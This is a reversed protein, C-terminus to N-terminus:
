QKEGKRIRAAMVVDEAVSDLLKIMQDFDFEEPQLGNAAMLTLGTQFIRMKLLIAMLEEETFDELGPDKQMMNVLERVMEEDYNKLYENPELAFDRILVPYEMAMKLSAIGIDRFPNGSQHEQLMQQSLEVVKHIVARKVEDVDNFNVYIPASSSGLHDAIKRITVNDLGETKAIHFASNIIQEKSFKPRPPM